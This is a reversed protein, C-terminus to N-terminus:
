IESTGSVPLDAVTSFAASGGWAATRFGEGAPCDLEGAGVGGTPVGGVSLWAAMGFAAVDDTGAVFAGVATSWVEVSCVFCVAATGVAEVDETGRSEEFRRGSKAM